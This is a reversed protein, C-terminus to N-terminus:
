VFGWRWVLIIGSRGFLTALEAAALHVNFFRSTQLLLTTSVMSGGSNSIVHICTGSWRSKPRKQDARRIAPNAGSTIGLIEANDELTM